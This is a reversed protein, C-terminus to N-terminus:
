HWPLCAPRKTEWYLPIKPSKDFQRFFTNSRRWRGYRWSYVLDRGFEATLRPLAGNTRDHPVPDSTTQTSSAKQNQQTSCTKMSNLMNKSPALNSPTFLYSDVPGESGPTFLYSDVPGGSGPTFLYSDVPGPTLLYSDV